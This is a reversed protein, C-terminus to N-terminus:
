YEDELIEQVLKIKLGLQISVPVGDMAHIAKLLIKKRLEIEQKNM